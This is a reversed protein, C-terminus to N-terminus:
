LWTAAEKLIKERVVELPEASNLIVFREPNARARTLYAERVGTFFPLGESEFRDAARAKALREAAIKPDLDFLVTKDPGLEGQVMKELLEVREAPYGKGGVQYAYTADTFRDSLVWAGSALAPCIVQRLHEARAAFFLLTECDAGMGDHLLLGRIKEAVPTGGPERTRVVEIGRGKLFAEVADIQSSKGAGDIGEFTIFRGRAPTTENMM